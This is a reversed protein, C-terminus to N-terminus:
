KSKKQTDGSYIKKIKSVYGQGWYGIFSFAKTKWCHKAYYRKGKFELNMMKRTWVCVSTMVFLSWNWIIKRSM